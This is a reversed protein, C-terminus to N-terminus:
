KNVLHTVKYQTIFHIFIKLHQHMKRIMINKIMRNEVINILLWVFSSVRYDILSEPHLTFM